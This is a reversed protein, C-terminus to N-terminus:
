PRGEPRSATSGGPEVIVPLCQAELRRRRRLTTADRLSAMDMGGLRQVTSGAHCPQLTSRLLGDASTEDPNHGSVRPDFHLCAMPMHGHFRTMPIHGHGHLFLRAMYIHGYLPLRVMSTFRVPYPQPLCPAHAGTGVCAHGHSHLLHRRWGVRLNLSDTPTDQRPCKRPRFRPRAPNPTPNKPAQSNYPPDASFTHPFADPTHNYPSVAIGYPSAAWTHPPRPIAHPVFTAHFVPIHFRSAAARCPPRRVAHPAQGLPLSPTIQPSQM